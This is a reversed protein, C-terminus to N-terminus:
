FGPGCVPPFQRKPLENLNQDERKLWKLHFFYLAIFCLVQYAKRHTTYRHYYTCMHTHMYWRAHMSALPSKLQGTGDIEAMLSELVVDRVSGAVPSTALKGCHDEQRWVTGKWWCAMWCPKKCLRWKLLLCRVWQALQWAGSYKMWILKSKDFLFLVNASLKQICM